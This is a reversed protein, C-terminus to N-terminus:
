PFGSGSHDKFANARRIYGVVTRPDPHGSQDMIRALDAGHEAATTIYGAQLSHAGFTSADLGAAKAYGKIIDTVAQTTLRPTGGTSAKPQGCGDQHSHRIVGM